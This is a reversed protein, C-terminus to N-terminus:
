STDAAFIYAAGGTVSGSSNYETGGVIIVSGDWSISVSDGFEGNATVDSAQIKKTQTWTTGSKTFIYVSGAHNAGTNQYPAGIVAIDGFQDISVSRGFGDGVVGDSPQLKAVQSWTTGSRTFIYAFGTYAGTYSGVIATNGYVSISVSKGFGLQGPVDGAQLEAQESWTTGSRTFIYASQSEVGPSNSAILYNGSHSLDVDIGFFDPNAINSPQLKAQQSWTTGSRTFIYVAGYSSGYLGYGPAGVAVTNGTNSIALSGGFTDNNLGDSSTLKAQQSWSSSGSRTFIYVSGGNTHYNSDELNASCAVTLGSFDMATKFGFQDGTQKDSSQIKAAQSWTSGSGNFIYAAGADTGGTDEQFAGIIAIDGFRNVDVSCGFRDSAQADSAVLKSQQTVSSWDPNISTDNVISSIQAVTNGSANGERIYITIAQPGDTEHDEYPTVTFTGSNSNITFTANSSLFNASYPAAVRYLLTGDPVNVTTVNFTGTSGEDISSPGTISYTSTSNDNITIIPTQAVITGAASDLRIYVILSETGETAYDANIELTFSGTAGNMNFSGTSTSNSLDPVGTITGTVLTTWYLTSPVNGTATVTVTMSSGENISTASPTATFTSNVSTDNITITKYPSSTSFGDSDTAGATILLSETGESTEDAALTLSISGINDVITINGTLQGSTLDNATIGTITYPVTVNDLVNTTNLSIEFTAGENVSIPASWVYTPYTSTDVITQTGSPSGTAFGASDNADIIVEFTEVGETSRDEAIIFSINDTNNNITFTGILDGASIDDVVLGSTTYGVTTGDEVNSTTLTVTLTEGENVSSSSVAFTPDQSSDSVTVSISPEGTEFGASDPTSLTLSFIETDETIQDPDFTFSISGTNNVITFNGQLSGLILDAASIGTVTYPVTVNDLVYQTDLTITLVNNNNEDVTLIDSSLTYTPSVSTDIINFSHSTNTGDLSITVAERGETLRDESMQITISAQNNVTVFNGTLSGSTIDEPELGTITYAHSGDPINFTQLNITFSENENVSTTPGTLYYVAIAQITFSDLYDDMRIVIDRDILNLAGPAITFALSATNGNVTIIGNTPDSGAKFFGNPIDLVTYSLDTGDEINTTNVTITFEVNEQVIPM